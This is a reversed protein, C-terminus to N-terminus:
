DVAEFGPQPLMEAAPPAAAASELSVGPTQSSAGSAPGKWPALAAFEQSVGPTQGPSPPPRLPPLGPPGAVVGSVCAAAASGAFAASDPAAAATAAAALDPTVLAPAGLAGATVGPADTSSVASPSLPRPIIYFQWKLNELDKLVFADSRSLMFGKLTGEGVNRAVWSALRPPLHNPMFWKGGPLFARFVAEVEDWPALRHPVTAAAVPAGATVGPAGVSAGASLVGGSPPSPSLEPVIYFKWKVDELDRVVFSNPRSLMFARMTGQKVNEALWTWVPRPLHSPMLWKNAPLATRLFAEVEDWPAVRYPLSKKQKPPMLWCGRHKPDRPHELRRSQQSRLQRYASIVGSVIFLMDPFTCKM